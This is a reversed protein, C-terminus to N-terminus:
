CGPAPAPSLALAIDLGVQNRGALKAGYMATDARELFAYLDDAENLQALGLSITATIDKGHTHIPGDSVKCRIREAVAFADAVSIGPLIVPFEEGGYRGVRDFQRVALQIRRAVHRLVDDGIMHGHDDNVRKFFDIDAMLLCLSTQRVRAAQMAENLETLIEGHNALETLPDTRARQHYDAVKQCLRDVSHKLHNIRTMYHADIVLAADISTIKPIFRSLPEFLDAQERISMPIADHLIQQLRYCAASYFRLPVGADAFAHSLRLRRDFYVPTDFGIGLELLHAQLSRELDESQHAGPFPMSRHQHFLAQRFSAVLQAVQPAIVAGHLLKAAAQDAESLDFWALWDSVQDTECARLAITAARMIM